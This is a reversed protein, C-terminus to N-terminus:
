TVRTASYSVIGFALLTLVAIAVHGYEWSQRLNRWDPTVQAWNATAVNAPQVWLFFAVLGAGILAASILAGAAAQPRSRRLLYALGVDLIIKATILVGFFAWGLYMQQASFYADRDMVLKRTMELAHAGSPVLLIGGLWVSIL